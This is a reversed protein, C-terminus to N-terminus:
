KARRARVGDAVVALLIVLGQIARSWYAQVGLNTLMPNITALLLVGIFTGCLRGRGGSVAVGGVVAAAIATLEYGTGSKPDVQTSQAANMAAALGTLAGMLMFVGFTTRQPSISALRAAEADTGVAYVFRGAALNRMGWAMALLLLVAFVFLVIMGPYQALGFWQVGPPLNIFVGEQWLRLGERLIIMMALTVVISPLRLWAVLVGNAAGMIAGAGISAGICVVLPVKAAALLGGVVSCVGFQSGVSIDIQRCIIVLTMGVAVVLKPAERALLPLLQDRHFFAPAVLALILLLVGRAAAVSLERFYRNMNEGGKGPAPKKRLL